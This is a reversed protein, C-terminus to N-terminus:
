VASVPATAQPVERWTWVGLSASWVVTLVGTIMTAFMAETSYGGLAILVGSAVSAVGVVITAYAMGQRGGADALLACGYAIITAGVALAFIADLGIEIQRVALAASFLSQRDGDAATAWQDVMSKLAVGDVAQLAAALALGAAGCVESVRAWGTGPVGSLQRALLVVSVLMAAVGALQLLHAVVWDARSTAAYEAFAAASDNPDTGSPHLWTGIVLLAAGTVALSGSTRRYRRISM